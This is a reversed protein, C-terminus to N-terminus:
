EGIVRAVLTKIWQDGNKSYLEDLQQSLAINKREVNEWKNQAAKREESVNQPITQRAQELYETRLTVRKEAIERESNVREQQVAETAERAKRDMDVIQKIIDQM